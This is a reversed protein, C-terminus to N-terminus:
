HSRVMPQAKVSGYLARPKSLADHNLRQQKCIGAACKLIGTLKTLPTQERLRMATEQMTVQITHPLINQEM